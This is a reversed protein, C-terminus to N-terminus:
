KSVITRDGSFLDVRVLAELLEDVLVVSQAEEVALGHPIAFFAENLFRNSSLLLRFGTLPDVRWVAPSRRGFLDVASADLVILDGRDQDIAIAILTGFFVDGIGNSSVVLREGTAPNVQWVVTSSRLPDFGLLPAGSADVANADVVWVTSGNSAVAIGQPDGFFANGPGNFAVLTREGTAPDVRLVAPGFFGFSNRANRDLVWLTGDGQVAIGVPDGFFVDGASFNSSVVTREGTAPNVRLLAPSSFGFVDSANRDLVVLTGAPEVVIRVPDGFFVDDGDLNASVVTREGTAPNVRLVRPDTDNGFIDLGADLVWLTGDTEVAVDRPIDFRSGNGRRDDEGVLVTRSGSVPDVRVVRPLTAAFDGVDVLALSGSPEVAISYPFRLLADSDPTFNSSVVTRSGTGPDVRLVAPSFLGNSDPVVADVVVLTNNAEVAIGVPAGFFFTEFSANTSVPTREGTEPNVRLVAPGISIFEGFENLAGANVDVVVLAGTTELAIGYPFGFFVDGLSFNSSVATRDGTEPDVRLLAPSFFGFIDSAARDLVVLAGSSEVTIGVPAGFFVDDAVLNSSVVTRDGTEPNVRIIQPATGDGQDVVVLTRRAPEVAVAYPFDFLPGSGVIHTCNADICGSIVTREGSEPDLRVAARLGADVIVLSGDAAVVIGSPLGLTITFRVAPVDQVNALTAEVERVRNSGVRYTVTAMGDADTPVVITTLEQGSADLFRGTSASEEDSADVPLLNFTVPVGAANNAGPPVTQAVTAAGRQLITNAAPNEGTVVASIQITDGPEGACRCPGVRLTPQTVAWTFMVSTSLAGDSVTLTVTYPSAALAAATLSGTIRGTAQNISLGPPLATASFVLTDGDLDSATIPLEVTAGDVAIQNGPATVIPATNGLCSALGLFKQFICLADAPTIASGEPDLVNARDRQCADLPPVALGLFQRFALLADGPTRRGDQTVDGDHPCGGNDTATMPRTSQLGASTFTLGVLLGSGQIGKRPAPAAAAPHVLWLGLLGLVWVKRPLPCFRQLRRTHRATQM